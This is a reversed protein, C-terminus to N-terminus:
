FDAAPMIVPIIQSCNMRYIQFDSDLTMVASNKSLEAMRVLCADALSMPVSAYQKMLENLADANDSLRFNIQIVGDQILSLVTRQAGHTNSLLFLAETIVPECTTYPYETAQLAARAWQHFDDRDKLFAVLPGTDLVVLPKM